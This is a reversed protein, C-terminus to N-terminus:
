RCHHFGGSLQFNSLRSHVFLYLMLNRLSSFLITADLGHIRTTGQSIAAMEFLSGESTFVM